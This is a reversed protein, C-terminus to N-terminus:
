GHNCPRSCYFCGDIHNAISPYKEKAAEIADFCNSFYGIYDMNKSDEIFTCNEEHLEYQGSPQQNLNLYYRKM